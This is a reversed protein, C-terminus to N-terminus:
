ITIFTLGAQTSMIVMKKLTKRIRVGIGLRNILSVCMPTSTGIGLTMSQGVKKEHSMYDYYAELGPWDYNPNSNPQTDWSNLYGRYAIVSEHTDFTIVLDEKLLTKYAGKPEIEFGSEYGLGAYLKSGDPLRLDEDDDLNRMKVTYDVGEVLTHWPESTMVELTGPILERKYYIWKYKNYLPSSDFGETPKFSEWDNKYLIYSDVIKGNVIDQNKTNYRITWSSTMRNAVKPNEVAVKDIGFEKEPTIHGGDGSDGIGNIHVQNGLSITQEPHATMYASDKTFRTTYTVEYNRKAFNPTAPPMITMTSQGSGNTGFSKTFSSADTQNNLPNVVVSSQEYTHTGAGAPTVKLVDEIPHNASGDIPYYVKVTWYLLAYDYDAQTAADGNAKFYKIKDQGNEQNLKKELVGTGQAVDFEGSNVDEWGDNGSKFSAKNTIKIVDPNTVRTKVVVKYSARSTSGDQPQITWTVEHSGTNDVETYGSPKLLTQWSAGKEKKSVLASVFAQNTGYDDKIIVNSLAQNQNAGENVLIEWTIIGSNKDYDTQRKIITANGDPQPNVTVEQGGVQSLDITEDTNTQSFEFWTNVELHGSVDDLSLVIPKRSLTIKRDETITYTAFPTNSFTDSGYITGSMGGTPIYFCSPLNEFITPTNLISANKLDNDLSWNITMKVNTKDAVQSGNPLTVNTGDVEPDIQLTTSTTKYAGSDQTVQFDGVAASVRTPLYTLNFFQPLLISLLMLMHLMKTKIKGMFNAGDKM